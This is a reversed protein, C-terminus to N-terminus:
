YGFRRLNADSLGYNSSTYEIGLEQCKDIAYEDGNQAATGWWFEARDSDVRGARGDSYMLAVMYQASAHGTFAARIFFRVAEFDRRAVYRMMGLDYGCEGYGEMTGKLLVFVGKTDPPMAVADCMAASFPRAYATEVWDFCRQEALMPEGLQRAEDCGQQNLYDIVGTLSTGGDEDGLSAARALWFLTSGFDMRGIYVSALDVQADTQDRIAAVFYWEFATTTDAPVGRGELYMLGMLYYADADGQDAAKRIWVLANEHDELMETYIAGLVVQAKVHGIEAGKTLIRVAMEVDGAHAAQSARVLLEDDSNNMM